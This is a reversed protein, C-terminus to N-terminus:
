ARLNADPLPAAVPPTEPKVNLLAKLRERYFPSAWSLVLFPLLMAFTFGAMFLALCLLIGFEIGFLSAAPCLFHLAAAVAFWVAVLSLFLRLCIRCPHYRGRCALGGLAMAAAVVSALLALPVVLPAGMLGVGATAAFQRPDLLGIIPEAGQNWGALAAFSFLIFALLLFWESLFASLRHGRGLCPPLLWLVALGFAMAVPIDFLVDFAGKPLDASSSEIGLEL